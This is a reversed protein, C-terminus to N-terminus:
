EGRAERVLEAFRGVDAIRLAGGERSILCLSGLRSLERSVAERHTSVRDAIDALTPAPSLIAEGQAIGMAKALRLLEAHIRHQVAFARFEYVRESLRRIRSTLLRLTAVSVEGDERVIREFDPASMIAVLTSRLAEISASRPGRDIAAIEGFIESEGIDTFLLAKGDPAYIIARVTGELIFFIDTSTDQYSLVISGQAYRQWRSQSIVRDLTPEAATRFISVQRLVHRQETILM